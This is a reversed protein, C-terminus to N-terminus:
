SFSPTPSSILLFISYTIPTPAYNLGLHSSFLTLHLLLTLSYSGVELNLLLSWRPPTPTSHLSSSTPLPISSHSSPTFLSPSLIRLLLLSFTLVSIFFFISLLLYFYLIFSLFFFPLIPLLLIIINYSIITLLRLLLLFWDITDWNGDWVIFVLSSPRSYITEFFELSGLRGFPIVWMGITDNLNQFTLLVIFLVSSSYFVIDDWFGLNDTKREKPWGHWNGM